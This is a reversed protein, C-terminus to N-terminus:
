ITFIAYQYRRNLTEVHRVRKFGLGEFVPFLEPLQMWIYAIYVKKDSGRFTSAIKELIPKLIDVQFPHYFHYVTNKAEIQFQTADMCRVSINGCKQTRSSYVQLNKEAVACLPKSIEVGAISRFPWDSAIMLVRGKGSGIDVFDFQSYDIDLSALLHREFKVPSSIYYVASRTKERDGIGLADLPVISSTDTKFRQDFSRDRSPNYSFAHVLLAKITEVAGLSSLSVKIREFKNGLTTM